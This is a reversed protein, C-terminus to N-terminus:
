AGAGVPTAVSVLLPAAATVPTAALAADVIALAREGLSSTREAVAAVVRARVRRLLFEDPVQQRLEQGAVGVTVADDCVLRVLPLMALDVRGARRRRESDRM